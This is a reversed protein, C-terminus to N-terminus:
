ELITSKLQDNLFFSNYGVRTLEAKLAINEQELPRLNNQEQKLQQVYQM